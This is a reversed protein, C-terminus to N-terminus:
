ESGAPPIVSTRAADAVPGAPPPDVVVGESPNLGLPFAHPSEM